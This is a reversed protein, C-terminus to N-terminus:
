KQLQFDLVIADHDSLPVDDSTVLNGVVKPLSNPALEINKGTFWDLKLSCRGGVQNMAWRIFPFCWEPIWDRLNTNKEFSNMDYHLTGCGIQNFKKYEFGRRELMEFLSKEFMREPFPYHNQAVNRAGMMVRRWYGLIARNATQSNHTTTNWDGGIIVPLPELTDLFDLILKMQMQRHLRSSHADTHVVVARFDGSPHEIDAVIARLQGLRKESGFMKDKGNPLPVAHVNKLPFRSMLALGHIAKTNEGETFAEVGSGKTLAIYCPAFAFNLKLKEAIERAIFLNHARAMGYDLETLLYLDRERLEDHTQLAHLIGEIQVGREINWAAARIVKDNNPQVNPLAHNEIVISQLVEEIQPRLQKYLPSNELEATSNFQALAPFFQELEHNLVSATSSKSVVSVTSM